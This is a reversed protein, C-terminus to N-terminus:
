LGEGSCVNLFFIGNAKKTYTGKLWGSCAQLSSESPDCQMPVRGKNVSTEKTAAPGSVTVATAKHM